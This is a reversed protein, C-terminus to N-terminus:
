KSLFGEMTPKKTMLTKAKQNEEFTINNGKAKAGNSIQAKQIKEAEIDKKTMKECFKALWIMFAPVIILTSLFGFTSNMTKAHRVFENNPNKFVEYIKNLAKQNKVNKFANEIEDSTAEKLSKGVIKEANARVTKDLMLTKKVNGGNEKLFTFFGNIGGKFKDINSYKSVIEGTKLVHVGDGSTAYYYAKHFFSNKFKEPKINLALGSLKAMVDSFGRAIGKAAFLIAVFSSVDRVYIEKRDHKDNAHLLRPPLCFGFLLTLCQTPSMSAGDFEFKDSLKKLLSKNNVVDATKEFIGMKGTFNPNGKQNNNLEKKAEPTDLGDLGPNHKLGMNYLKPIQTMFLVVASFIGMNTLIRSGARRKAFSRAYDLVNIDSSKEIAKKTSRMADNTFNTLSSLMSKFGGVAESKNVEDSIKAVSLNNSPALNQKKLDMFDDALSQLLDESSGKVTKGALKKFFGKSKANEIEIYRKTYSKALKEIEKSNVTQETTHTLMDKFINNYFVEKATKPNNKILDKNDQAFRAFKEGFVNIRDVPVKNATWGKKNILAFLGLPIVFMSPGSLLERLAERRAFAWNYQGTKDKNRNAGEYIRPAVMGVCDQSIFSAIYGGREITDMVPIVPNFGTFNPHGNNNKQRIAPKIAEITM